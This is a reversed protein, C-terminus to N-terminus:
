KGPKGPWSMICKANLGTEPSLLQIESHNVVPMEM